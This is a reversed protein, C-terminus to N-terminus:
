RQDGILLYNLPKFPFAYHGTVWFVVDLFVSISVFVLHHPQFSFIFVACPLRTQCGPSFVNWGAQLHFFKETGAENIVSNSKIFGFSKILNNELWTRFIFLVNYIKM